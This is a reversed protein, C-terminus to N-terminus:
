PQGKPGHGPEKLPHGKRPGINSDSFPGRGAAKQPECPDRERTKQPGCPDREGLRRSSLVQCGGAHKNM